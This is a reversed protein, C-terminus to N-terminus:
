QSASGSELKQAPSTFWIEDLEMDPIIQLHYETVSHSRIVQWRAPYRQGNPLQAYDLYQTRIEHEITRDDKAYTRFITEVPMHDRSPDIWYIKVNRRKSTQTPYSVTEVWLGIQGPRDDDTLLEVKSNPGFLGLKLRSPWIEGPLSERAKSMPLIQRAPGKVEGAGVYSKKNPFYTGAWTREGDSVIFGWPLVDEAYQIVTEIQPVPWGPPVDMKPMDRHKTKALEPSLVLYRLCFWADGNQTYLQINGRDMRPKGDQDLATSTIMGVYNGFGKKYRADLRDLVTKADAKPRTDIIRADRPVGFAYIDVPGTAPYDLRMTISVLREGDDGDLGEMRLSVVRKAESDVRVEM